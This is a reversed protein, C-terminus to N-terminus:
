TSNRGESVKLYNGAWRGCTSILVSSNFDLYIIVGFLCETLEILLFNFSFFLFSFLLSSFFLSSSFAVRCSFSQLCSAMGPLPRNFCVM